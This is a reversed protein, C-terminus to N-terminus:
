EFWDKELYRNVLDGPTVDHWVRGDSFLEIGANSYVMDALASCILKHNSKVYNVLWKPKFGFRALALALYDIFNYGTGELKRAESVVVARQEDTIGWDLFIAKGAYNDISVIEAGHPMAQMVTNDDLVIFVHTWKCGDGNLYQGLGVWFGVSGGITSFGMSGPQPIRKEFM